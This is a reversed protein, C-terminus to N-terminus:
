ASISSANSSKNRRVRRAVGAFAALGTGLMLMTAPEPVMTINEQPGSLSRDTPTLIRFGSFDFGAFDTLQATLLWQASASTIPVPPAPTFLAWIAGQIDGRASVNVPLNMQYYLWAAQQYKALAGATAGYLSNAVGAPTLTNVTVDWTQGIFVHRDFSMCTMLISNGNLTAYYPGAAYGQFSAGSVGTLTVSDASASSAAGLVILLLFSTLFFRRM